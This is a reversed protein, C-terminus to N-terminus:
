RKEAGGPSVRPTELASTTEPGFIVRTKTIRGILHKTLQQREIVSRFHPGEALEPHSFLPPLASHLPPAIQRPADEGCRFNHMAHQHDEPHSTSPFAALKLSTPTANWDLM